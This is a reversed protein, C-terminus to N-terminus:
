RVCKEEGVSTRCRRLNYRCCRELRTEFYACGPEHSKRTGRVTFWREPQSCVTPGVTPMPHEIVSADDVDPPVISEGGCVCGSCSAVALLWALRSSM